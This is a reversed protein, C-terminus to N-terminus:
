YIEISAVDAAVSIPRLEVIWKSEFSFDWRSDIGDDVDDVAVTYTWNNGNIRLM